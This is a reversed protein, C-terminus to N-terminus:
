NTSETLFDRLLHRFAAPHEAHVVHGANSIIATRTMPMLVSMQEAIEVYKVDLAGAVTLVRSKVHGLRDWLPPQRGTGMMRLSRALEPPSNQMRTIIRSELLGDQNGLSVFMPHRYWEEIFTTYEKTELRRARADDLKIRAARDAEHKLGPSASELVVRRCRRPHHIAFYLALRGGMSYGVVHAKEIGLSDLVDSLLHAAGEMGYDADEQLGISRGHGPLDVAICCFDARLVDVIERWDGASGMFGHLFLIAPRGPDGETRYNLASSVDITM